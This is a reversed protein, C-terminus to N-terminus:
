IWSEMESGESGRRLRRAVRPCFYWSDFDIILTVKQSRSFKRSQWSSCLDLARWCGIVMWSVSHSESCFSFSSDNILFSMSSAWLAPASFSRRKFYAGSTWNVFLQRAWHTWNLRNLNATLGPSASFLPLHTLPSALSSLWHWPSITTVPCPVNVLSLELLEM